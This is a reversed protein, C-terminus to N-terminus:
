SFPNCFADLEMERVAISKRTPLNTMKLMERDIEKPTMTSIISGRIEDFLSTDYLKFLPREYFFRYDMSVHDRKAEAWDNVIQPKIWFTGDYMMTSEILNLIDIPSYLYQDFNEMYSPHCIVIINTCDAEPVVIVYADSYENGIKHTLRKELAVPYPIDIKKYFIEYNTQYRLPPGIKVTANSDIAIKRDTGKSQELLIHISTALNESNVIKKSETEPNFLLNYGSSEFESLTLARRLFTDRCVIRYCQLLLDRITTIGNKDISYFIKEHEECFGKFTTAEGIGESTFKIQKFDETDKRKSKLTLLKGNDAIIGLSSQKSIAHSNVALQSCGPYMCTSKRKPALQSQLKEHFRFNINQKYKPDLRFM